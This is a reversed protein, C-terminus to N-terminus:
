IGMALDLPNVGSKSLNEAKLKLTDRVDLINALEACNSIDERYYIKLMEALFKDMQTDIFLLNKAFTENLVSDFKLEAIRNIRDRIKTKTNIRNIEEVENDAVGFVEFRFNTARSANLLTPSDGLDSKISFGCIRDLNTFPDHVEINIDPKDASDAKIKQCKLNSM